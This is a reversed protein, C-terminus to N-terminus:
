AAHHAPSWILMLRRAAEDACRWAAEEFYDPAYRATVNERVVVRSIATRAPNFFFSYRHGEVRHRLAIFSPTTRVLVFDHCGTCLFQNDLDATRNHMNMM